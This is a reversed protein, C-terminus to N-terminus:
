NTTCRSSVPSRRGAPPAGPPSFNIAAPKGALQASTYINGDSDKLSFSPATRAGSSRAATEPGAKGAETGTQRDRYLLIAVALVVVLALILPVVGIGKRSWMGSRM